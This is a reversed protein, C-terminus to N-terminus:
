EGNGVRGTVTPLTFYFRSGQGHISEFGMQGGQKEVLLKCLSLGLGTGKINQRDPHRVRYFRQFLHPQDELPIGLGRDRVWLEVQGNTQAAAGIEIPEGHPSYKIANSILNVLVQSVQWRDGWAPQLGAGLQLTTPYPGFASLVEQILSPVCFDIPHTDLSGTELNRIETLDQLLSQLRHVQHQVIELFEQRHVPELDPEALLHVSGSLATLPTALQHTLLHILQTQAAIKQKLLQNELTAVTEASRPDAFCSESSSAQPLNPEEHSSSSM